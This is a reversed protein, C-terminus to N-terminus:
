GRGTGIRAAPRSGRRTQTTPAAGPRAAAALDRLDLINSWSGRLAPQRGIDLDIARGRRPEPDRRRRDVVREIVREALADDRRDESLRVLVPHDEFGVRVHLLRQVREARDVQRGRRRAFPCTGSDAIAWTSSCVAGSAILWRPWNGDAVTENLRAGPAESPSATSAIRSACCSSPRGVLM